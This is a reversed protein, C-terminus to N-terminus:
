KDISFYRGVRVKGGAWRAEIGATQPFCSTKRCVRVLDAEAAGSGMKIEYGQELLFDKGEQAIDQPILIKYAM